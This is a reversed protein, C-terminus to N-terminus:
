LKNFNKNTQRDGWRIWCIEWTSLVTDPVYLLEIIMQQIFVDCVIIKNKGSM